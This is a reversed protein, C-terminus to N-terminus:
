VADANCAARYFALKVKKLQLFYKTKIHMGSDCISQNTILIYHWVYCVYMYVTFVSLAHLVIIVLLEAIASLRAAPHM